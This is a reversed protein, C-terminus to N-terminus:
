LSSTTSTSVSACGRRAYSMKKNRYGARNSGTGNGSEWPPRVLGGRPHSFGAPSIPPFRHSDTPFDCTLAKGSIGVKEWSQALAWIKGSSKGGVGCVIQLIDTM